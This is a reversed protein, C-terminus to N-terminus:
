GVANRASTGLVAKLLESRIPAVRVAGTRAASTNISFMFICVIAKIYKCSNYITNKNLM